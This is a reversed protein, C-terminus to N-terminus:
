LGVAGLLLRSLYKHYELFLMKLSPRTQVADRVMLTEPPTRRGLELAARRMHWDSTVLRVSTIKERQLWGAVEEGNGVTDTAEFGLTVCCAMLAPRVAHEAAFERPKVERAVGSVFMRDAWGNRLAEVGRAIRGPGGTLVVVAQTKGPTAPQPLAIAFWVFGLAWALLVIALIRRIM